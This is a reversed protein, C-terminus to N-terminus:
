NNPENNSDAAPTPSPSTSTSVGQVAPAKKETDRSVHLQFPLLVGLWLGVLVAGAGWTFMSLKRVRVHEPQSRLQEVKQKLRRKM